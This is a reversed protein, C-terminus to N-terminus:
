LLLLFLMSLCQIKEGRAGQIRKISDKSEENERGIYYKVLILGRFLRKRRVFRRFKWKFLYFVRGGMIFDRKKSLKKLVGIIENKCFQLKGQFGVDGKGEWCREVLKGLKM